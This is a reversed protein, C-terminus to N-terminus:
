LSQYFRLVEAIVAGASRYPDRYKFGPVPRNAEPNITLCVKLAQTSYDMRVSVAIGAACALVSAVSMLTESVSGPSALAKLSGSDNRYKEPNRVATSLTVDVALPENGIFVAFPQIDLTLVHDASITMLATLLATLVHVYLDASLRIIRLIPDTEVNRIEFVTQLFLPSERLNRVVTETLLGVDCLGRGREPSTVAHLVNPFMRLVLTSEPTLAPPYPDPNGSLLIIERIMRDTIDSFSQFAPNMLLHFQGIDEALFVTTIMQGGSFSKECFAYRFSSRGTTSFIECPLIGNDSEPPDACYERFRIRDGARLSRLFYIGAETPDTIEPFIWEVAHSEKLQADEDFILFPLEYM